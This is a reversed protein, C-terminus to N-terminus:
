EKYSIKNPKIDSLVEIKNDEVLIACNNPIGLVERKTELLEKTKITGEEYHPSIVLDIISLGEVFEHKTSEGRLIKSDSFGEKSLLIAGASIGVLVKNAIQKLEQDLHYEKLTNMFEITDGGDLYIIDAKNIREKGLDINHNLGRRKLQLTECGLEKYSKKLTDYMAEAYKNGFGIYLFIPNEKNTLSVIKKELDKIDGGGILIVKNTKM